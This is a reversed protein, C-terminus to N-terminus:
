QMATCKLDLAKRRPAPYPTCDGDYRAIAKM